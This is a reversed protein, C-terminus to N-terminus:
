SEGRPLLEAIAEPRYRARVRRPDKGCANWHNVALRYAEGFQKRDLLGRIQSECDISGPGGSRVAAAKGVVAFRRGGRAVLRKIVGGFRM